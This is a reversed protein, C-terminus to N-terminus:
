VPAGPLRRYHIHAPVQFSDPHANGELMSFVCRLSHEALQRSDQVIADISLPLCDLLQHDDFSM